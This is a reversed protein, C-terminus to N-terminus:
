FTCFDRGSIEPRSDSKIEATGGAKICTKTCGSLAYLAQGRAGRLGEPKSTGAGFHERSGKVPSEPDRGPIRGETEEMLGSETPSTRKRDSEASLTKMGAKIALM